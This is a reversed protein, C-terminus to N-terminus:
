NNSEMGAKSKDLLGSLAACSLRTERTSLISSSFCFSAASGFGCTFAMIARWCPPVAHEFVARLGNKFLKGM